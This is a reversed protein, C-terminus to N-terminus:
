YIPANVAIKFTIYATNDDITKDAKGFAKSEASYCRLKYGYQDTGGRSNIGDIADEFKDAFLGLESYTGKFHTRNVEISKWPRESSGFYIGLQASVDNANECTCKITIFYTGQEPKEHIAEELKNEFDESIIYSNFRPLTTTDLMVHPM